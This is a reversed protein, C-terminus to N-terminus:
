RRRRMVDVSRVGIRRGHAVLPTLGRLLAVALKYLHVLAIGTLRGIVVAAAVLLPLLWLALKGLAWCLGVIAVGAAAILLGIAEGGGDGGGPQASPRQAPMRSGQSVGM